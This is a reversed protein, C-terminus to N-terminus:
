MISTWSELLNELSDRLIFNVEPWKTKDLYSEEGGGTVYHTLHLVSQMWEFRSERSSSKETKSVNQFPLEIYENGGQHLKFKGDLLRARVIENEFPVDAFYDGRLEEATERFEKDSSRVVKIGELLGMQQYTQLCFDAVTSAHITKFLEVLPKDVFTPLKRAIEEQWGSPIRKRYLPSFKKQIKNEQTFNLRVLNGNAKDILPTVTERYDHDSDHYFFIIEGGIQAQLARASQIKAVLYRKPFFGNPQQGFGIHIQSM